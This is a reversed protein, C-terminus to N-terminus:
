RLVRPSSRRYPGLALRKRILSTVRYHYFSAPASDLHRVGTQWGANTRFVFLGIDETSMFSKQERGLPARGSVATAHHPTTHLPVEIM